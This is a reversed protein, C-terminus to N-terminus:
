EGPRRDIGRGTSTVDKANMANTIRDIAAKRRTAHSRDGSAGAVSVRDILRDITDRAEGSLTQAREIQPVLRELRAVDEIDGAPRALFLAALGVLLTIGYCWRPLRSHRHAATPLGRVVYERRASAVAPGFEAIGSM